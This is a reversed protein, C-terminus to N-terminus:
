GELAAKAAENTADIKWEHNLDPVFCLSTRWDWGGVMGRGCERQDHIVEETVQVLWGGFVKTRRYYGSLNSEIDEWIMM